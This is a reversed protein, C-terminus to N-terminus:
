VKPTRLPMDAGPEEAAPEVWVRHVRGFLRSRGMRYRLRFGAKTIGRRSAANERLCYIWVRPHERLAEETLARLVRPYINQGRFASPTWCNSIIPVPEELPIQCEPGVESGARVETGTCTWALHVVDEGRLAVHLRYGKKLSERAAHLRKADFLDPHDPALAALDALTGPRIRLDKEGGLTRAPLDSAECSYVFVEDRAFV